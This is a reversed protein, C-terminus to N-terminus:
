KAYNIREKIVFKQKGDIKEDEIVAFTGSGIYSLRQNPKLIVRKRIESTVCDFHFYKGSDKQFISTSMNEIKKNCISCFESSFTNIKYPIISRNRKVIIKKNQNSKLNKSDIIVKERKQEKQENKNDTKNKNLFNIKIGKNQSSDIKSKEESINKNVTTVVAKIERNNKQNKDKNKLDKKNRNNFNKHHKKM